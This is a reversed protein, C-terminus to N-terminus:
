GPFVVASTGATPNKKEELETKWKSWAEYEEPHEEMWAWHKEPTRLKSCKESCFRGSGYVAPADEDVRVPRECCECPRNTGRTSGLFYNNPSKMTISTPISGVM